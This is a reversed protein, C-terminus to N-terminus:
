FINKKLSLTTNKEREFILFVFIMNQLHYLRLIDLM